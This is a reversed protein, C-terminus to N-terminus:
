KANRKVEPFTSIVAFVDSVLRLQTECLSSFSYNKLADRDKDSLRHKGSFVIIPLDNSKAYAFAARMGEILVHAFPWRNPTYGEPEIALPVAILPEDSTSMRIETLFVAM